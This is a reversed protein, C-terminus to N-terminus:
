KDLEAKMAAIIPALMMINPDTNFRSAGIKQKYKTLLADITKITKGDIKEGKKLFSNIFSIESNDIQDTVSREMKRETGKIDAKSLKKKELLDLLETTVDM